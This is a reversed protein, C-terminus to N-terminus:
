APAAAEETIARALRDALEAHRSAAYISVTVDAGHGHLLIGLGSPYLLTTGYLGLVAHGRWTCTGPPIPTNSCVLDSFASSTVYRTLAAHIRKGCGATAANIVAGAAAFNRQKALGTRKRVETIRDGLTIRDDLRHREVPLGIRFPLAGNGLQAVPGPARVDSPVTVYGLRRVADRGLARSFAGAVVALYVDNLTAGESRAREM